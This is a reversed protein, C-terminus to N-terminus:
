IKCMKTMLTQEFRLLGIFIEPEQSYDNLQALGAAAVV